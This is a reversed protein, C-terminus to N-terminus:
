AIKGVFYRLSTFIAVISIAIPSAVAVFAQIPIHAIQYCAATGNGVIM